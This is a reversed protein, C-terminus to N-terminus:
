DHVRCTLIHAALPYPPPAPHDALILATSPLHLMPWFERALVGSRRPVTLYGDRGLWDSCSKCNVACVHNENCWNRRHSASDMMGERGLLGEGDCSSTRSEGCMPGVSCM